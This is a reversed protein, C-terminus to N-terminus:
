AGVPPATVAPSHTPPGVSHPGYAFAAGAPLAVMEILATVLANSVETLVGFPSRHCTDTLGAPANEGIVM